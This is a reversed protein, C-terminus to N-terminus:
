FDAFFTAPQTQHLSISSHPSFCHIAIEDCLFGLCASRGEDTGHNTDKVRALISCQDQWSQTASLEKGIEEPTEPIGIASPIIVFLKYVVQERRRHVIHEQGHTRVHAPVIGIIAWLTTHMEHKSVADRLLNFILEIGDGCTLM